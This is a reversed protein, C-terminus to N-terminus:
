DQSKNNMKIITLVLEKAINMWLKTKQEQDSIYNICNKALIILEVHDSASYVTASRPQHLIYSFIGMLNGEGLTTIVQDKAVVFCEGKKVIMISQSGDDEKIIKDKNESTIIASNKFLELRTQRTLGELLPFSLTEIEATKLIKIGTHEISQIKESMALIDSDIPQYKDGIEDRITDVLFKINKSEEYDKRTSVMVIYYGSQYHKILKLPTKFKFLQKYFHFLGPECIGVSINYKNQYFFELYAKILMVSFFKNNKNKKDVSITDFIITYPHLVEPIYDLSQYEDKFISYKKLEDVTFFLLVGSVKNNKKNICSIMHGSKILASRKLEHKFYENGLAFSEDHFEKSDLVCYLHRTQYKFLLQKFWRFVM